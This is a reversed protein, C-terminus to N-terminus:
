LGEEQAILARLDCWLLGRAPAMMPPARFTYPRRAVWMGGNAYRGWIWRPLVAEHLALAANMDDCYASWVTDNMGPSAVLVARSAEVGWDGAEVKAALEKLAELRTMSKRRKPQADEDAYGKLALYCDALDAPSLGSTKALDKCRAIHALKARTTQAPTM